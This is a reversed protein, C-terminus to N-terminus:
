ISKCTKDETLEVEGRLYRMLLTGELDVPEDKAFTWEPESPPEYCRCCNGFIDKCCNCLCATKDM